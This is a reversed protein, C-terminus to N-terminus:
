NPTLLESIYIKLNDRHWPSELNRSKKICESCVGSNPTGQLSCFPETPEWIDGRTTAFAVFSMEGVCQWHELSELILDEPFPSSDQWIPSDTSVGPHRCHTQGTKLLTWLSPNSNLALTQVAHTFPGTKAGAGCVYSFIDGWLEEYFRAEEQM